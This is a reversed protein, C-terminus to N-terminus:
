SSRTARPSGTGRAGQVELEIPTGDMLRDLIALVAGERTAVPKGAVGVIADGPQLGARSAISDATVDGIVPKLASTGVVLLIWYAVAAFLFNAFPGALLM